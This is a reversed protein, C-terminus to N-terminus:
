AGRGLRQNRVPRSRGKLLCWPLRRGACRTPGAGASHWLPAPGGAPLRSSPAVCAAGLRSRRADRVGVPPAVCQSAPFASNLGFPRTTAPHVSPIGREAAFAADYGGNLLIPALSIVEPRCVAGAPRHRGRGPGPRRTSFSIGQGVAPLGTAHRLPARPCAPCGNVGFVAHYSAANFVRLSQRFGAIHRM